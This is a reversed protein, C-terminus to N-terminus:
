EKRLCFDRLALFPLHGSILRDMQAMFDMLDTRDMLGTLDMLDMLGTRDTLDGMLCESCRPQVVKPMQLCGEEDWPCEVDVDASVECVMRETTEAVNKEPSTPEPSLRQRRKLM